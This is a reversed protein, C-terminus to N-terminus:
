PKECLFLQYSCWGSLYGESEKIPLLGDVIRQWDERTRIFDGFDLWHVLRTGLGAGPLGVDEIVLLNGGPRTQAVAATLLARATGEDLHHLVGNVMVLDFPEGAGPWGIMDACVYRRDPNHRRAFRIYAPRIDLGLYRDAPFLHSYEGTGCGVDLLSPRGLREYLAAIRTKTAHYNAEPLKRLYHFLLPRAALGHVIADRLSWGHGQEKGSGQSM